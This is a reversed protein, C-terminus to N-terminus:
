QNCRKNMEGSPLGLVNCLEFFDELFFFFATQQTKLVRWLTELNLGRGAVVIKKVTKCFKMFDDAPM